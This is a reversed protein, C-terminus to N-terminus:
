SAYSLTCQCNQKARQEPIDFTCKVEWFRQLVSCVSLMTQTGEYACVCVCVCVLTPGWKTLVEHGVRGRGFIAANQGHEKNLMGTVTWM